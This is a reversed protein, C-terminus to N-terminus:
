SESANADIGASHVSSNTESVHEVLQVAQQQRPAEALTPIPQAVSRAPAAEQTRTFKKRFAQSIRDQLGVAHRNQTGTSQPSSKPREIRISQNAVRVQKASPQQRQQPQVRPTSAQRAAVPAAPAPYAYQQRSAPPSRHLHHLAANVQADKAGSAAQNQMRMYQSMNAIQAGHTFQVPAVASAQQVSSRIEAESEVVSYAAPQVHVPPAYREPGDSQQASATSALALGVAVSRLSLSRTLRQLFSKASIEPQVM